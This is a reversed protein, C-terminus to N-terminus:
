IRRIKDKFCTHLGWFSLTGDAEARLLDKVAAM